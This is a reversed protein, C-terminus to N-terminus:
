RPFPGWSPSTNDGAGRTIRRLNEGNLDIVYIDARGRRSSSFALKRANPAWTASEDSLRHTVIPVNVSGEPDILWIDFQGGVRTEYAIWRGDPSWAPHSNYTGQFSLRRQNGGDADMLYIQPSGSRDSVFAIREGDPSWAPAIDIARNRTLRRLGRGGPSVTYLESPEGSKSMVVALRDGDPAFVGRYESRQGNLRHLLQGPRGRGRTSLFLLPRNQHRYSTYLIAEGNPSWAPFANISGNATAPRQNSGDAGMVYIESNGGRNSVFALETSAVGRLGIFAAVVDDAIRKAVVTEDAGGAERYRKRALRTCRATDWVRFEVAFEGDARIEGEVLADAGIQTWDSCVMPEGEDLGSGVEPGLFAEQSLLKFIGSYELAHGLAERLRQVRADDPLASRDVFPQLAVRFNRASGPTVLVAPHEEAGAGAGLVVLGLVLGCGLIRLM